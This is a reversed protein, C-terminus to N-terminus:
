FPAFAFIFVLGVNRNITFTPKTIKIDDSIRVIFPYALAKNM